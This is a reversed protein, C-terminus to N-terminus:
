DDDLRGYNKGEKIAEKVYDLTKWFDKPTILTYGRSELTSIIEGETTMAERALRSVAIVEADEIKGNKKLAIM